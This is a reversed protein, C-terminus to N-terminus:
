LAEMSFAAVVPCPLQPSRTESDPILQRAGLARDFSGLVGVPALVLLVEHLVVDEAKDNEPNGVDVLSSLSAVLKLTLVVLEALTIGCFKVGM